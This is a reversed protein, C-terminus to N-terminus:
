HWLDELETAHDTAPDAATSLEHTAPPATVQYGHPRAVPDCGPAYLGRLRRWRILGALLAATDFNAGSSALAVTAPIGAITLGVSLNWPSPLPLLKSLGYGLLASAFLQLVQAITLGAFLTIRRELHRYTEHVLSSEDDLLERLAGAVPNNQRSM